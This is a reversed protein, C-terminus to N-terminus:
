QADRLHSLLDEPHELAVKVAAGIVETLSLRRNVKVSLQLGLEQVARHEDPLLRVTTGKKADQPTTNMCGSYRV